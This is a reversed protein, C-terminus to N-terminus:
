SLEEILKELIKEANMGFQQKQYDIWSTVNDVVIYPGRPYEPYSVDGWETVNIIFRKERLNM